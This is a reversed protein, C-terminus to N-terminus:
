TARRKTVTRKGSHVTFEIRKVRQSPDSALSDISGAPGDLGRGDGSAFAAALNLCERATRGEGANVLPDVALELAHARVEDVIEALQGGVPAFQIRIKGEAAVEALELQLDFSGAAAGAIAIPANLADVFSAGAAGPRRVKVEGATWAHNASLGAGETDLLRLAVVRLAAVPEGVLIM